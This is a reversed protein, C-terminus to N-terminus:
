KYHIGMDSKHGNEMTIGMLVSFFALPPGELHAVSFFLFSSQAERSWHFPILYPVRQIEFTPNQSGRIIYLSKYVRAM